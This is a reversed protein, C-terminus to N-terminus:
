NNLESTIGQCRTKTIIRALKVTEHVGYAITANMEDKIEGVKIEGNAPVNGPVRIEIQV